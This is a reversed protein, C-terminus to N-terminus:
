QSAAFGDNALAADSISRDITSREYLSKYFDADSKIGQLEREHKERAKKAEHEAQQKTTRMDAQLQELNAETKAREEATLTKQKLTAQYQKELTAYKQQLSKNRKVIMEDVEAQTFVRPKGADDVPPNNGEEQDESEIIEVEEENDFALVEAFIK